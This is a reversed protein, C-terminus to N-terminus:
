VMKLIFNILSAFYGGIVAYGTSSPHVDLLGRHWGNGYAIDATEWAYFTDIVPLSYAEALELLALIFPLQKTYPISSDPSPNPLMLIIPVSNGLCYEIITVYNAKFASVSFGSLWHNIGYNLCLADVKATSLAIVPLSEWYNASNPLWSSVLQSSIGVNILELRKTNNDYCEWGIIIMGASNTAAKHLSFVTGQVSDVGTSATVKSITGVGSITATGIQIGDAEIIFPDYGTTNVYYIDISNCPLNPTITIPDTTSFNRLGGMGVGKGSNFITWAASLVGVRTDIANINNAGSSVNGSGGYHSQYGCNILSQKLQEAAQTVFSEFIEGSEPGEQKGITTSDGAFMIRTNNKNHITNLLKNKLPIFNSRFTALNGALKIGALGTPTLTRGDGTILQNGVKAVGDFNAHIDSESNVNKVSQNVILPYDKDSVFWLRMLEAALDDPLNIWGSPYDVGLHRFPQSAFVKM